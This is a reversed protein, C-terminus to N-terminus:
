KGGATGFEPFLHINTVSWRLPFPFLERWSLSFPFSPAHRKLHAGVRCGGFSVFHIGLQLPTQTFTNESGWGGISGHQESM